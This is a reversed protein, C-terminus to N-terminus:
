EATQPKSPESKDLFVPGLITAVCMLFRCAGYWAIFEPTFQSRSIDAKKKGHHKRGRATKKFKPTPKRNFGSPNPPTTMEM